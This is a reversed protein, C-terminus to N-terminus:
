GWNFYEWFNFSILQIPRKNMTKKREKIINKKAKTKRDRINIKINKM